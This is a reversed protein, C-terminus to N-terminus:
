ANRCLSPEKIEWSHDVLLHGQNQPPLKGSGFFDSSVVEISGANSIWDSIDSGVSSFLNFTYRGPYLPLRPIHCLVRGRQPLKDLSFDKVKTSLHFLPDNKSDHLGIAIEVNSLSNGSATFDFALTASGGCPISAAPTGDPNLTEFHVFRLAQNGKRDKRDALNVGARSEIGLLYRDVVAQSPGDEQIGGQNLLLARGCLGLVAAMSHSVFLVTRGEQQAVEKMKGLCRQQFRMDGVALVEDVILIEPELHAAVAFALRVYMGSSYRKVPTDLFREVEAFAVIEDFKRAIEGRSMGLIAGNLFVNERGSLEPHFGTGVELLSAVRGRLCIEGTTPETIQSLLKLLTSKGAGNHGIIGVVEGEQVDFSVDKLAWFSEPEAQPSPASERLKFLRKVGEGIHDRLTDHRATGLRYCKGLNQVSIIPQRM